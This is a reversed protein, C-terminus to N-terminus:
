KMNHEYGQVGHIMSAGVTASEVWFAVFLQCSWMM